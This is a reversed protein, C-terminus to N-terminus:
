TRHTGPMAPSGGKRQVPNQGRTTAAQKNSAVPLLSTALGDSSDLDSDLGGLSGRPTHGLCAPLCVPQDTPEARCAYPM